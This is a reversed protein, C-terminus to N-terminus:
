TITTQAQRLKAPQNALAGWGFTGVILSGRYKESREIVGIDEFMQTAVSMGEGARGAYLRHNSTSAARSSSMSDDMVLQFGRYVPLSRNIVAADTAGSVLLLKEQVLHETILDIMAPSTVLYRGDRPIFGEDMDLALARLSEDIATMHAANGWDANAVSIAAATLPTVGSQFKARIDGNLQENVERASHRVASEMLDPRVQAQHVSSVLENVDYYKDVILVVKSTNQVGPTSREQNSLTNSQANAKTVSNVGYTSTDTPLEITDGFELEASVDNVLTRWVNTQYFNEQFRAAYIKGIADTIAM